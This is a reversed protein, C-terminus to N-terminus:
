KEAEDGFFAVGDTGVGPIAPYLVVDLVQLLLSHDLTHLLCLESVGRYGM